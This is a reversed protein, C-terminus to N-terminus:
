MLLNNAFLAYLHVVCCVFGVMSYIVTTFLTSIIKDMLSYHESINSDTNPDTNSDTDSSTYSQKILWFIHDIFSTIIAVLTLMMLTKFNPNNILAIMSIGMFYLRQSDPYGVMTYYMLFVCLKIFLYYFLTGIMVLLFPYHLKTVFISFSFVTILFLIIKEYITNTMLFYMTAARREEIDIDFAEYNDNSMINIIDVIKTNIDNDIIM